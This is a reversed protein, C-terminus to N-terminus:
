LTLYDLLLKGRAKTPLQSRLAIYKLNRRLIDRLYSFEEAYDKRQEKPITHLLINVRQLYFDFAAPYLDPYNEAIFQYNCRWAEEEDMRRPTFQSTMISEPRIRYCYLEHPIQVLKKARHTVQYTTFADECIKGVPFRLGDWLERRYLKAWASVPYRCDHYLMSLFLAPDGVAYERCGCVSQEEGSVSLYNCISIEANEAEQAFLLDECLEPLLWDDSDVFMIYEGTAADLGANRADALGGNEKHIVRIRSDKEAWADCMAPCNDPSGDDVLIVELDQCTQALISSVCEDLYEEVRYIPVIVSIM